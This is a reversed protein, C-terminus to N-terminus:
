VKTKTWKMIFCSIIISPLEYTAQSIHQLIFCNNCSLVFSLLPVHSVILLVHNIADLLVGPHEGHGRLRVDGSSMTHLGGSSIEWCGESGEESKIGTAIM